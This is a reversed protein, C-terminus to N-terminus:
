TNKLSDVSVYEHMLSFWLGMGLSWQLIRLSRVRVLLAAANLQTPSGPDCPSELWVCYIQGLQCWIPECHFKRLCQLEGQRTINQSIQSWHLAVAFFLTGNYTSHWVDRISFTSKRLYPGSWWALVWRGLHQVQLCAHRRLWQQVVTRFHKYFMCALACM